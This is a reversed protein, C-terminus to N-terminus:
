SQTTHNNNNAHCCNHKINIQKLTKTKEHNRNVWAVNRSKRNGNTNNNNCKQKLAAAVVVMAAALNEHIAINYFNSHFRKCFLQFNVGNLLAQAVQLLSMRRIQFLQIRCCNRFHWNLNDINGHNARNHHLYHPPIRPNALFHLNHRALICLILICKKIADVIDNGLTKNSALWSHVHFPM